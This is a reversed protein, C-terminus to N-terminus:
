LAYCNSNQQAYINTHIFFNRYFNCNTTAEHYHNSHEFTDGHRHTDQKACKYCNAHIISHANFNIITHNYSYVKAHPISDCYRNPYLIPNFHSDQKPHELRDVDCYSAPYEDGHCVPYFNLDIDEFPHNDTHIFCHAHEHTPRRNFYIVGFIEM